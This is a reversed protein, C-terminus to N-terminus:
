QFLGAKSEGQAESNIYNKVTDNENWLIVLNRITDNTGAVFWNAVPVYNIAKAASRKHSYTWKELGSPDFDTKDPDGFIEKVQAKTTQGKVIQQNIKEKEMKGLVENGTKGACGSTIAMVGLLVASAVLTSQKM